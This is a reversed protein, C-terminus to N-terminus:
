RKGIISGLIGRIIHKGLNSGIARAISKYFAEGVSQRKRGTTQKSKPKAQTKTKAEKAAVEERRRITEEERKKLLEYASDRDLTKEYTAKLPSKSIIKKRKAEALPGFKSRPPSMLTREVVSPV